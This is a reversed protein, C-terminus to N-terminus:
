KRRSPDFTRVLRADMSTTPVRRPRGSVDIPRAPPPSALKRSLPDQAPRVFTPSAPYWSRKYDVTRPASIPDATVDTYQKGVVTPPPIGDPLTIRRTAQRYATGDPRTLVDYEQYTRSREAPKTARGSRVDARFHGVPVPSGKPLRVSKGNLASIFIEGDRWRQQRMQEAIARALQDVSPLAAM